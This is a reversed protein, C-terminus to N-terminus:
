LKSSQLALNVDQTFLQLLRPEHGEREEILMARDRHGNYTMVLVAPIIVTGAQVTYIHVSSVLTTVVDAGYGGSLKAPYERIAAM